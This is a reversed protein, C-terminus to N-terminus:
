EQRTPPPRPTVWNSNSEGLVSHPLIHTLSVSTFHPEPTFEGSWSKRFIDLRWIPCAWEGWHWDAPHLLKISSFGPGQPVKLYDITTNQHGNRYLSLLVLNAAWDDLSLVWMKLIDPLPKMSASNPGLGLKYFHTATGRRSPFNVTHDFGHVTCGSSDMFDEFSWDNNIGFSYVMCQPSDKWWLHLVQFGHVM